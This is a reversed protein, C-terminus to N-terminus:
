NTLLVVAAGFDAGGLDAETLGEGLLVFKDFVVDLCRDTNACSGLLSGHNYTAPPGLKFAQLRFAGYGVVNYTANSGVGDAVDFIPMLLTTQKDVASRLIGNLVSNTCGNGSGGFSNGTDGGDPVGDANTWVYCDSVTDLWAFGGSHGPCFLPSDGSEQLTILTRPSPLVTGDTTAANFAKQCVTLPITTASKPAGWAARATAGVSTSDNAGDDTLLPALIHRVAADDGNRSRVFTRLSNSSLWPCSMTHADAWQGTPVAAKGDMVCVLDASGDRANPNTFSQQGYTAAASQSTCASEKGACAQALALASADAGNQLERRELHLSGIDVVLAAAGFLVISVLAVIIAIAGQEDDKRMMRRM